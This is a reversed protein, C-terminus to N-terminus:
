ARYGLRLKYSGFVEKGHDIASDHLSLRLNVGTDFAVNMRDSFESCKLQMEGRSLNIYPMGMPKIRRTRTIGTMTEDLLDVLDAKVGIEINGVVDCSVFEWDVQGVSLRPDLTNTKHQLPYRVNNQMNPTSWEGPLSVPILSGGGMWVHTQRRSDDTSSHSAVCRVRNFLRKLDYGWIALIDGSKVMERIAKLEADTFIDRLSNLFQQKEHSNLLSHINTAHVFKAVDFAGLHTFLCKRLRRAQLIRRWLHAAKSSTTRTDSAKATPQAYEVRVQTHCPYILPGVLQFETANSMDPGRAQSEAPRKPSQFKSRLPKWHHLLYHVPYRLLDHVEAKM